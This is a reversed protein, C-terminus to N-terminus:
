ISLSENDGQAKDPIRVGHAYVKGGPGQEVRVDRKRLASALKRTTCDYDVIEHTMMHDLLDKLLTKARRDGNARLWAGLPDGEDLLRRKLEIIQQPMKSTEVMADELSLDLM